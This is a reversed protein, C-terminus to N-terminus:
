PKLKSAVAGSGVPSGAAVSGSGASASKPVIGALRAKKGEDQKREWEALARRISTPSADVKVDPGKMMASIQDVTFGQQRKKRIQPLLVRIQDGVKMTTKEAPTMGASAKEFAAARDAPSMKWIPIPTDAM